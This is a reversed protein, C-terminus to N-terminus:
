WNITINQKFWNEPSQEPDGNEDFTLAELASYFAMSTVELPDGLRTFLWDQQMQMSFSFPCNYLSTATETSQNMRQPPSGQIPTIHNVGMEYIAKRFTIIGRAAAAQLLKASAKTESLCHVTFPHFFNNKQGYRAGNMHDHWNSHGMWQVQESFGGEQIVLAPFVNIVEERDQESMKIILSGKEKNDTFIFDNQINGYLREQSFFGRFFGMLIAEPRVLFHTVENSM